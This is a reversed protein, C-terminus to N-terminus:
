TRPGEQLPATMATQADHRLSAVHALLACVSETRTAPGAHNAAAYLAVTTATDENAWAALFRAAFWDHTDADPRVARRIDSPQWVCGHAPAPPSGSYLSLLQARGVEAFGCCAVYIDAADGSDTIETVAVAAREWERAFAHRLASETLRALHDLEM